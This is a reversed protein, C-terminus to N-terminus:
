APPCVDKDFGRIALQERVANRVVPDPYDILRELLRYAKCRGLWEEAITSSRIIVRQFTRPNLGEGPTLLLVAIKEELSTAEHSPIRSHSGTGVEINSRWFDRVARLVGNKYILFCVCRDGVRINNVDGAIPGLSTYFFFDISKGVALAGKIANEVRTRVKVLQWNGRYGEADSAEVSSGVFRVREVTGIVIHSASEVMETDSMASLWRFEPRHEQCSPTLVVFLLGAM